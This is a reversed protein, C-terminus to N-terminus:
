KGGLKTRLRRAPMYNPYIKLCRNVWNLAQGKRGMEFNVQALRYAALYDNPNSKLIRKYREDKERNGQGKAAENHKNILAKAASAKLGYSNIVKKTDESNKERKDAVSKATKMPATVTSQQPTVQNEDYESPDDLRVPDQQGPEDEPLAEYGDDEYDDADYYDDEGEDPVFDDEVPDSGFYGENSAAFASVAFSATMVVALLLAIIKKTKM